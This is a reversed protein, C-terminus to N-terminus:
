CCNSEKSCACDAEKGTLWGIIIANACGVGPTVLIAGVPCNKACAGCEICSDKDKVQAKQQQVLFVGHPCVEECRGCGVCQDLHINLTVVNQLYKHKM